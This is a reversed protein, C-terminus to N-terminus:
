PMTHRFEQPVFPNLDFTIAKVQGPQIPSSLKLIESYHQTGPKFTLPLKARLKDQTQQAERAGALIKENEEASFTHGQDWGFMCVTVAGNPLKGTIALSGDSRLEVTWDSLGSIGDICLDVINRDISVPNAKCDSAQKCLSLQKYAKEMLWRIKRYPRSDLNFNGVALWAQRLKYLAYTPENHTLATRAEAYLSSWDKSVNYAQAEITRIAKFSADNLAKSQRAFIMASNADVLAKTPQDHLLAAQADEYSQQWLEVAKTAPQVAIFGLLVLIIQKALNRLQNKGRLLCSFDVNYLHM